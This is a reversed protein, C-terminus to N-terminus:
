LTGRIYPLKKWHGGLSLASIWLGTKGLRRYEMDPNYSRTTKVLGGVAHAKCATEDAKAGANQATVAGMGVALGAATLTSDRMFQRRTISDGTDPQSQRRSM